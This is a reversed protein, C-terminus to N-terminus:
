NGGYRDDARGALQELLRQEAARLAIRRMGEQVHMALPRTALYAAVQAPSVQDIAAEMRQLLPDSLPTLDAHEMVRLAEDYRDLFARRAEDRDETTCALNLKSAARAFLRDFASLLGDRESVPTMGSVTLM